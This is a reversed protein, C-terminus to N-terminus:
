ESLDMTLNGIRPTGGGPEPVGQERNNFNPPGNATFSDVDIDSDEAEDRSSEDDEHEEEEDEEEDEEVPKHISIDDFIVHRRKSLLM